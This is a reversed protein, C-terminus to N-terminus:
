RTLACPPFLLVGRGAAAAAAAGVKEDTSIKIILNSCYTKIGERQLPLAPSFREYLSLNAICSVAAACPFPYCRCCCM